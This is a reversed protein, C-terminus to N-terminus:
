IIIYKAKLQIENPDPVRYSKNMRIQQIQNDVNSISSIMNQLVGEDFKAVQNTDQLPFQDELKFEQKAYRLKYKQLYYPIFYDNNQNSNLLQDNNDIIKELIEYAKNREKQLFEILQPQEKYIQQQESHIANSLNLQLILKNNSQTIMGHNPDNKFHELVAKRSQILNIINQLDQYIYYQIEAQAQAQIQSDKFTQQQLNENNKNDFRSNTQSGNKISSNM